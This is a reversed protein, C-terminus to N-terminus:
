KEAPFLDRDGFRLIPDRETLLVGLLMLRPLAPMAALAPPISVRTTRGSACTGEYVGAAVAPLPRDCGPLFSLADPDLEARVSHGPVGGRVVHGRRTDTLEFLFDQGAITGEARRGGLLWLNVLEGDIKGTLQSATLHLDVAVGRVEGRVADATVAVSIEPRGQRQILLRPPPAPPPAEEDRSAIEPWPLV